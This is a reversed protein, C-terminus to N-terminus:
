GYLEGHTGIFCFIVVQGKELRYLARVDGTVNISRYGKYKGKLPHNNLEPDNPRLMFLRLRENFKVKVRPRLKKFQKQLNRSFRVPGYGSNM